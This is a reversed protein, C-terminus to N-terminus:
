KLILQEPFGGIFGDTTGIPQPPTGDETYNYTQWGLM